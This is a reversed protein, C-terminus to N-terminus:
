DQVAARATSRDALSMAPDLIRICASDFVVIEPGSFPHEIIVGDHGAEIMRRTFALAEAASAEQGPCAEPDLRAPNHLTIEARIVRGEDGAFPEALRIDSHFYFGAGGAALGSPSDHGPEFAAFEARTGHYASLRIM